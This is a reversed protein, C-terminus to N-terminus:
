ADLCSSVVNQINRYIYIYIILPSFVFFQMDVTMYWTQGLCDGHGHFNNIYLINAWWYQQCLEVLYNNIFHGQAAYSFYKLLTSRFPLIVLYVGTLHLFMFCLVDAM